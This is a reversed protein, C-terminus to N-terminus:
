QLMASATLNQTLYKWFSLPIQCLEYITKKLRLVRRNGCKDYQEFGKPIEIFVKENEELKACLFAATTDGQNSKM